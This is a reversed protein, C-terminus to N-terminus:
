AMLLRLAVVPAFGILTAWLAVSTVILVDHTRQARDYIAYNPNTPMTDGRKTKIPVNM